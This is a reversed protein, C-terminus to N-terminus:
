SRRKDFSASHLTEIERTRFSNLEPTRILHRSLRARWMDSMPAAIGNKVSVGVSESTAIAVGNQFAASHLTWSSNGLKAIGCRLEIDPGYIGERLYTFNASAVVITFGEAASASARGIRGDGLMRARGEEFLTALAVNNIHVNIDLDAYRTQLVVRFPYTEPQLRYPAPKTM